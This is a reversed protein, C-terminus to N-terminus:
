RALFSMAERLMEERRPSRSWFQRFPWDSVDDVARWVFEDRHKTWALAALLNFESLTDARRALAWDRLTVGHRAVCETRLEAFLRRPFLVPTNTIADFPAAQGFFDEVCRRWGDRPDARRKTLFRVIPRGRAFMLERLDCRTHFVCDSDVLAIYEADTLEDAHLKTIQQGVYDNKFEGGTAVSIAAHGPIDDRRLREFSSGPMAVIIRRYGAVHMLLARLSLSLFRFDRVYTRVVVDLAGPVM